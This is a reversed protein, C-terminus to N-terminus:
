EPLCTECPSYGYEAAEEASQFWVERDSDLSDAWACSPDHYVNSLRSGVFAGKSCGVLALALVIILVLLTLSRRM